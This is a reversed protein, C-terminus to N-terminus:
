LIIGVAPISWKLNSTKFICGASCITVLADGEPIEVGNVIGILGKQEGILYDSLPNPLSPPLSPAMYASGQTPGDFSDVTHSSPTLLWYDGRECVSSKFQNEFVLIDLFPGATM